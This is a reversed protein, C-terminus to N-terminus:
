ATADPGDAPATGAGGTGVAERSGAARRSPMARETAVTEGDATTTAARRRRWRGGGEAPLVDRAATISVRGIAFAAFFLVVAGLLYYYGLWEFTQRVYGGVPHGTQIVGHNWLRSVQTGIVFWAAGVAALWGAFVATVRSSAGVLILGALLVAVGPLIDLWLRGYTFHWTQHNIYAYGFYPGIFPIIAGWAGLVILCLGTILGRTRPISLASRRSTTTATM